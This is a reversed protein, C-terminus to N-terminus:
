HRRGDSPYRYHFGPGRGSPRSPVLGEEQALTKLHAIATPNSVGAIARYEATSIRRRERVWERAAALGSQRIGLHRRAPQSLRWAVSGAEPISIRTMLPAGGSIRYTSVRQLANQADTRTRQLLRHCSEATFFPTAPNTARWVLLAADTDDRAEVPELTSFFRYRNVDVRRGGLVVRVAPSDTSEILPQEGGIRILDGVMMDVGVGEQEVLGLQRVAGMLTRYRPQSPHTIINEATVDGIFGGPSTVRLENGIHEVVTPDRRNWDRHCVGNLIAERLSREPIARIRTVGFGNSVEHVPNNRAAEAEVLDLEELLCLGPEHVRVTSKAGPVPRRTYDISPQDRSILLIEGAMNLSDSDDHLLGLRSLLDRLDLSAKPRNVVAMRRRLSAIAGEAIDPMSHGSRRHSPDAAADAFLGQLLETSTVPVCSRGVRHRYRGNFPVPEVAQPISIVLLRTGAIHVQRIETNLKRETLEYLRRRLWDADTDSEILQGTKDDVGVILAGGGRTNAMCAAEEAIQRAVAESQPQGPLIRSGRRRGAEEKLDVATTELDEPRYDGAALATLVRVIEEERSPPDFFTFGPDSM